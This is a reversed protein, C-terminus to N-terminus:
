TLIKNEIYKKFFFRKHLHYSSLPLKTFIEVCGWTDKQRLAHVFRRNVLFKLFKGFVRFFM